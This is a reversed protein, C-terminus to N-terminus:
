LYRGKVSNLNNRIIPVLLLALLSHQHAGDFHTELADIGEFRITTIGAQTFKPPWGNRPLSEILSRVDPLFKITDGDPQPGSRPNQPYHIHFTGKILTYIDPVVEQAHATPVLMAVHLIAAILVRGFTM